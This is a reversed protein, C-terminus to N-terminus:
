KNDKNKLSRSRTLYRVKNLDKQEIYKTVKQAISPVLIEGSISKLESNIIDEAEIIESTAILNEYGLLCLDNKSAYNNIVKILRQITKDLKDFPLNGRKLNFLLVKDEEKLMPILDITGEYGLRKFTYKEKKLDAEFLYESELAHDEDYTYMIVTINQFILGNLFIEIEVKSKNDESSYRYQKTNNDKDVVIQIKDYNMVTLAPISELNMKLAANQFKFHEQDVWSSFRYSLKEDKLSSKIFEIKGNKHFIIQRENKNTENLQWSVQSNSYFVEETPYYYKTDPRLYKDLYSPSSFEVRETWYQNLDLLHAQTEQMKENLLSLLQHYPNHYRYKILNKGVPKRKYVNRKYTTLDLGNTLTIIFNEKEYLYWGLSSVLNDIIKFIADNSLAKDLTIELDSNKVESSQKILIAGLFDLGEMIFYAMNNDKPEIMNQYINENLEKLKTLADKFEDHYKVLSIREKSKGKLAINKYQM